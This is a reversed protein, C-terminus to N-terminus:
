EAGMEGHGSEPAEYKVVHMRAGNKTVAIMPLRRTSGEGGPEGELRELLKPDHGELIQVAVHRPMVGLFGKALIKQGTAKEIAGFFAQALPSGAQLLVGVPDAEPHEALVSRAEQVLVGKEEELDLFAHADQSFRDLDDPETM